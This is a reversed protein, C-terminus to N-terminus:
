HSSSSMSSPHYSLDPRYVLMESWVRQTANSFSSMLSETEAKGMTQELMAEMTQEPPEMGAWSNHPVVLAFHPHEGGNMTTYWAYNQNPEWNAKQIAQHVKGIAEQFARESGPKVMYHIVEVMKAPQIDQPVRSVDPLLVMFSNSSSASYPDLNATADANDAKALKAEWEDFDKWHHRGTVTLYSGAEPGTAVEWTEWAWTDNQQQHFNMHRKRGEEYQQTMGAKPQTIYVRAVTGPKEQALAPSTVALCGFLSAVVLVSRM